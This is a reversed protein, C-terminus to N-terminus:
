RQRTTTAHQRREMAVNLELRLLEVERKLEMRGTEDATRAALKKQEIENRIEVERPVFGANKLLTYGARLEDPAEFYASLDIRRGRGDVNDFAGGRMAEQILAEAIKELM